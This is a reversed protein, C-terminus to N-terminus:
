WFHFESRLLYLYCLYFLTKTAFLSPYMCISVHLSTSICDLLYNDPLIKAFVYKFLNFSIIQWTLSNWLFQIKTKKNELHSHFHVSIKNQLWWQWRATSSHVSQVCHVSYHLTCSYLTCVSIVQDTGQRVKPGQVSKPCVCVDRDLHGNYVRSAASWQNLHQTMKIRQLDIMIPLNIDYRVKIVLNVIVLWLVVTCTKFVVDEEIDWWWWWWKLLIRRFVKMIIMKVMVMTM